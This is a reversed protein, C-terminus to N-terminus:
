RAAVAVWRCSGHLFVCCVGNSHWNDTVSETLSLVGIVVLMSVVVVVVVVLANSTGRSSVAYVGCGCSRPKPLDPLTGGLGLCYFGLGGRHRRGTGCVHAAV